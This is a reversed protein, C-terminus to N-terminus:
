IDFAGGAREAGEMFVTKGGLDAAVTGAFEGDCNGGSKAAELTGPGLGVSLWSAGLLWPAIHM